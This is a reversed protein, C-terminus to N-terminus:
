VGGQDPVGHMRHCRHPLQASPFPQGSLWIMDQCLVSAASDASQGGQWKSVLSCVNSHMPQGCVHSMRQRGKTGQSSLLNADKSIHVHEQCTYGSCLQQSTASHQMDASYAPM